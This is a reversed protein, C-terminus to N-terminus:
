KPGRCFSTLMKFAYDVNVKISVVAGAFFVIIAGIIIAIIWYWAM